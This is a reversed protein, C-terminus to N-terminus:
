VPHARRRSSADIDVFDPTFPKGVQLPQLPPLPPLPALPPPPIKTRIVLEPFLRWDMRRAKIPKLGGHFSAHFCMVETKSLEAIQQATLVSIAQENEGETTQHDAHSSISHAFASTYGLKRALYEQTELGSQRSFIQTDLNNMLTRARDPGYLSKPQNLDQFDVWLSIGAGPLSAALEPLGPVPAVGAEDILALTEHCDRGKRQYYLTSLGNLLSSWFLQSLPALAKQRDQPVHFYISIPKRVRTGNEEVEKGLLVDEFTFDAGSFSRIVTETILPRMIAAFNSWSNQLYLDAFNVHEIKRDLLRTALNQDEALGHIQSLAQLRDAAAEPGFHILHACYPLLPWGELYGAQFLATLMGCARQIFPDPRGNHVPSLLYDAMKLFDDETHCNYFPDFRSGFGTPSVVFTPGSYKERYGATRDYHELKMDNVIFSYKWTLLETDAGLSKGHRPPSIVGINGLERQDDTPRVTLVQNGPGIGILFHTGVAPTTGAMLAALEHPYAFRGKHLKQDPGAFLTSHSIRDVFMRIKLWVESFIRGGLGM